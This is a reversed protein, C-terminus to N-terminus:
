VDIKEVDKIAHFLYINTQRIYSSMILDWNRLTIGTTYHNFRNVASDYYDLEYELRAIVNVKPRIDKPFTHVGNDEWSHEELLIVKAYLLGVFTLIGNFFSGLWNGTTHIANKNNYMVLTVAFEKFDWFPIKNECTHLRPLNASSGEYFLDENLTKKKEPCILVPM